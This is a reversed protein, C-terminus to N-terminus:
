PAGPEFPNFLSAGFPLFDKINRTVLTLQHTIATAALMADEYVTNSRGHMLKAWRRFSAGTMPLINSRASLGDAWAELTAAKKPDNPRTAEIGKQIEGLTVASLFIHEAPISSVWDLVAGHPKTRRLESVINTDFLYM